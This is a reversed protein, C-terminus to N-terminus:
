RNPDNKWNVPLNIGPQPCAPCFNALEGPAPQSPTPKHGHGAWKKKKLWRWLHSMRLLDQYIHPTKAPFMPNTQRRLKQFYHYASAKCELNSLRFDDLVEVTFLTSYVSFTTPVLHCYMLDAHVNDAGHCNCTVLAIHHMGNTHVIRVYHNNLADQRPVNHSLYGNINELDAGTDETIDESEEDATDINDIDMSMTAAPMGTDTEMTAPQADSGLVMHLRTQEEEDKVLQITELIRKQIAMLECLQAEKHHSVIIYAGVEWLHATRFFSGTWCEIRHLPREAHSHRMCHRCLIPASFCDKCRWIALSSHTCLCTGDNPLAERALLANLLIDACDVFQQMRLRQQNVVNKEQEDAPHEGADNSNIDYGTNDLAPVDSGGNSVAATHKLPV